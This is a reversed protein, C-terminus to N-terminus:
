GSSLDGKGREGYSQEDADQKGEDVGQDPPAAACHVAHEWAKCATDAADSKSYNLHGLTALFSKGASTYEQTCGVKCLVGMWENIWTGATDHCMLDCSTPPMLICTVKSVSCNVLM